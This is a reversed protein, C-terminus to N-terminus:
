VRTRSIDGGDLRSLTNAFHKPWRLNLLIATPGVLDRLSDRLDASQALANMRAVLREVSPQARQQDLLKLLTLM